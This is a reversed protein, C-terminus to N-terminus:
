TGIACRTIVQGASRCYKVAPASYPQPLRQISGRRTNLVAACRHCLQRLSRNAIAVHLVNCVARQMYCCAVHLMTCDAVHLL